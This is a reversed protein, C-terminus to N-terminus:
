YSSGDSFGCSDWGWGLTGLGGMGGFAGSGWAGTNRTRVWDPMHEVSYWGENGDTIRAQEIKRKAILLIVQWISSM